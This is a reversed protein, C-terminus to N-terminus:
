YFIAFSAHHWGRPRHKLLSDTEVEQRKPNEGQSGLGWATLLSLLRHLPGRLSSCPERSEARASRGALLWNESALWTLSDDQWHTRRDESLSGWSGDQLAM